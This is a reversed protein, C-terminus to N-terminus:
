DKLRSMTVSKACLAATDPTLSPFDASLFSPTHPPPPSVIKSELFVFRSAFGSIVVFILYNCRFFPPPFLFILLLYSLLPLRSGTLRSPCSPPVVRVNPAFSTNNRRFNNVCIGFRCRRIVGKGVCFAEDDSESKETLAEFSSTGHM